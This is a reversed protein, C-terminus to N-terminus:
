VQKGLTEADSTTTEERKQSGAADDGLLSRAGERQAKPLILGFWLLWIPLLIMSNLFTLGASAVMFLGWNAWQLIHSIFDFLCFIGVCTGLKAWGIPFVSHGGNETATAIVYHMLFLASALALWLGTDVWIFTGQTSLFNIELVKWGYGRESEEIGGWEMDFDTAMWDLTANTGLIMLIDVAAFLCASFVLLTIALHASLKHRGGKSSHICFLIVPPLLLCIGVVAMLKSSMEWFRTRVRWAWMEKLYGVDLAKWKAFDFNPRPTGAFGSNYFITIAYSLFLFAASAFCQPDVDKDVLSM